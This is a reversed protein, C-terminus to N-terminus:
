LFITKCLGYREYAAEFAEGHSVDFQTRLQDYLDRGLAKLVDYAAHDKYGPRWEHKRSKVPNMICQQIMDETVM